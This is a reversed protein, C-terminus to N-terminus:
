PFALKFLMMHERHKFFWTSSIRRKGELAFSGEPLTAILWAEMEDIKNAANRKSDGISQNGMNSISGFSFQLVMCFKYDAFREAFSEGNPMAFETLTHRM